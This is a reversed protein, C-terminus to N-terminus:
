RNPGRRGPPIPGTSGIAPLTVTDDDAIPRRAGPVAPGEPKGLPVSRLPGGAVRGTAPRAPGSELEAAPAGAPTVAAAPAPTTRQRSLLELLAVLVVAVLLGAAGVPLATGVLGRMRSVPAAASISTAQAPDAAQLQANAGQLAERARALASTAADRQALLAQYDPLKPGIEDLRKQGAAIASAAASAGRGNGVAQMSLQQQRLTAMENLTAQYIKDPQSVKNEREWESIATTAATVDARAAEVQQTAIAVQSSFLFTLARRTTSELVPGVTSRNPTTFTLELQSSAGVQEVAIGDRLTAPRVGTDGAVQEVVRPSTAAAAFSAVFQNAAQTGTYQQAASGGVLAPAAVYATGVYQQPALLVIAAAAGTAVVPVAVLVWLRRRAVRLYDVIEM